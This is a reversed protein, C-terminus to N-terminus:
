TISEKLFRTDEKEVPPRESISRQRDINLGYKQTIKPRYYPCYPTRLSYGPNLLYLFFVTDHHIM